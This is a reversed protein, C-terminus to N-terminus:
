LLIYLLALASYCESLEQTYSCRYFLMCTMEISVKMNIINDEALLVRLNRPLPKSMSSLSSSSTRASMSHKLDM